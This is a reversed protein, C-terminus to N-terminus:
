QMQRRRSEKPVITCRRGKRWSSRRQIEIYGNNDVVLNSNDDFHGMLLLKTTRRPRGNRLAADPLDCVLFSAISHVKRKRNKFIKHVKATLKFYGGYDPYDYTRGGRIIRVLVVTASIFVM